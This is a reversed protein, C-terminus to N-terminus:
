LHPWILHSFQFEGFGASLSTGEVCNVTMCYSGELGLTGEVAAVNQGVVAFCHRLLVLPVTGPQRLSQGIQAIYTSTISINVWPNRVHAYKYQWWVEGEPTMFYDAYTNRVGVAIRGAHCGRQPFSHLRCKGEELRVNNYVVDQYIRDSPRTLFNHLVITAKVVHEAM